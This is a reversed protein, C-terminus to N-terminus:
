NIYKILSFTSSLGGVYCVKGIIYKHKEDSSPRISHGLCTMNLRQTQRSIFEYKKVVVNREIKMLSQTFKSGSPAVSFKFNKKRKECKRDMIISIHRCIQSTLMVITETM